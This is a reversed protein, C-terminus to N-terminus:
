KHSRHYKFTFEDVVDGWHPLFRCINSVEKPSDTAVVMDMLAVIVENRSRYPVREVLKDFDELLTVPVRVSIVKTKEMSLSNLFVGCLYLFDALSTICFWAKKRNPLWFNNMVRAHIVYQLLIAM